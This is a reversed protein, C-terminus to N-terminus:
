AVDWKHRRIKETPAKDKLISLNYAKLHEHCAICFAIGKLLPKGCECQKDKKTLRGFKSM